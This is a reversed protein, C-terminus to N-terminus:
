IGLEGGNATFGTKRRAWARCPGKKETESSKADQRLEERAAKLARERIYESLAMAHLKAARQLLEKDAERCKIAIHASFPTASTPRGRM